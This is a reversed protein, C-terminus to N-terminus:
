TVDTIDIMCVTNRRIFAEGRIFAGGTNRVFQIYYVGQQKFFIFYSFVKRCETNLTVMSPFVALISM